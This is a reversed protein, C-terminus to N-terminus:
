SSARPWVGRLVARLTRLDMPKDLRPHPSAALFEQAAATFVGGTMFVMRAVLEPRLASLEAHLQMGTMEPMMLDSLVVDFSSAALLALAERGSTALTVDYDDALVRALARGLTPEDDVILLRPRVGPGPGDVSVDAAVAVPAAAAAVCLRVRMRTGVGVQSDVLIDGGFSGVIGHAIALGLGTGLGIPRTTFFPEFIRGIIEPPIGHGTDRIEIEVFGDARAAARVHIRNEAAHGEPIAQAANVILNVLVQTLRAPEALVRPLAGDVTRVVRARHRVQSLSMGLAADIAAVVDVPGLQGESPRAFTQLGRVIRRVREVGECCEDLLV